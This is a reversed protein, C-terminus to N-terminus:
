LTKTVTADKSRSRSLPYGWDSWRRRHWDHIQGDRVLANLHKALRDRGFMRNVIPFTVTRETSVACHGAQDGVAADHWAVGPANSMQSPRYVTIAVIGAALIIPVIIPVYRIIPEYTVANVAELAAAVGCLHLAPGAV